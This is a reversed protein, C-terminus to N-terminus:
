CEADAMRLVTLTRDAKKGAHPMAHTSIGAHQTPNSPNPIKSSEDNNALAM